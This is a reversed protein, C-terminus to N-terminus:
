TGLAHPTMLFWYLVIAVLGFVLGLHIHTTGYTPLRAAEVFRPTQPYSKSDAARWAGFIFYNVILPAVYNLLLTSITENVWGKARMIAPIAAWVGRRILGLVVMLPLLANPPLTTFTLAGWTALWAGM